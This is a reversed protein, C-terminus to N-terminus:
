LDLDADRQPDAIKIINNTAKFPSVEKKKPMLSSTIGPNHREPVHLERLNLGKAEAIRRLSSDQQMEQVINKPTTVANLRLYADPDIELAKQAIAQLEKSAQSKIGKTRGAHKNLAEIDAQTQNIKAGNIKAKPALYTIAEGTKINFLYVGERLDEYCVKVTTDNYQQYLSAPLQFEHKVLKKFFTIQGRRITMETQLTLLEARDFMSAVIPNPNANQVYLENSSKGSSQITKNYREVIEIAIGIIEQESLLNKIYQDIMEPKALADISKARVGEGLYGYYDKCLNDLHKNYREVISKYQPNQTVIWNTGKKALLSQLNKAEKTQNFAHNDTLIEFPLIGTKNVADRIGEMILETNESKGISYGVVKKSSSDILRVLTYRQTYKEGKGWFPLNWGDMQWQDNSFKPHHLSAHPMKKNAESQGYRSNFTDINRLHTRRNQKVWSLSPVKYQKEGCAEKILELIKPNSFKKPHSALCAMWYKTVPSLVKNTQDNNNGFVRKDMAVNMIGDAKAKRIANSLANKSKYKNPFLNNFCEYISTLARVGENDKLDIICQFVAHLKAFETIKEPKIKSDTEYHVKFKAHDFYYATKIAESINEFQCQKNEKHIITESNPLKKRTRHPISNYLFFLEKDITMKIVGMEENWFEMTKLTAYKKLYGKSLYLQNGEVHITKNM